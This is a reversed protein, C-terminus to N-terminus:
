YLQLDFEHNDSTAVLAELIKINHEKALHNSSIKINAHDRCYYRNLISLVKDIQPHFDRVSLKGGFSEEIDTYFYENPEANIKNKM